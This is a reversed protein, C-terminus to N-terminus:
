KIGQKALAARLAAEGKAGVDYFVVSGARDVIVVTPYANVSLAKLVDDDPKMQEGVNVTVVALGKLRFEKQLKELVPLERKSPASWPTWFYLLAVKGKTPPAGKIAPAPKGEVEPKVIGPLTWDATETAGDPPEFTFLSDPLDTNLALGMTTTAQTMQVPEPLGGMTLQANFTNQLTMGLTKSIWSIQVADDITLQQDPLKIQEYHAEVVWCEYPKEDIEMTKEGTIEVSKIAKNIDPLNKLVGTEGLASEPSSTAARKIFKKQQDFYIYTHEGDSVITMGVPGSQSEIRMRDPRRVSIVAPMQLRNTMGGRNEIVSLSHIQYSSYKAIPDASHLLLERADPQAQAM